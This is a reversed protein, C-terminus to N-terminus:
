RAASVVSCRQWGSQCSDVEEEADYADNLYRSDEQISTADLVAADHLLDLIFNVLGLGFDALDGLRSPREKLRLNPHLIPRLM